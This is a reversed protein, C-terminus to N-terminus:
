TREADLIRDLVGRIPDGEDLAARLQRASEAEVPSLTTIVPVEGQEATAYIVGSSGAALRPAFRQLLGEVVDSTLIRQVAGAVVVITGAVGVLWAYWGGPLEEAVPELAEVVVPVIALLVTVVALAVTLMTRVFRRVRDPVSVKESM